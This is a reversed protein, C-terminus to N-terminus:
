TQSYDVVKGPNLLGKPDFALKLRQQLSHEVGSRYRTLAERRLQGVGHEACISGNYRSIIDFVTNNIQPQRKLLLDIQSPDRTAVNFHLNGDGLHGFVYLCLDDGLAAVAAELEPLVRALDSTAVSLDHKVNHGERSQAMPVSERLRWLQMAQEGSHAILAADTLGQAAAVTLIEELRARAQDSGAYDECEILLHYASEPLRLGRVSEPSQRALLALCSASLAEFATLLPGASQRVHRLLAVAANMDSVSVLATATGAPLPFLKFVATTIIGLTGESGIFLDRLDYGANDKRLGRLGNWVEGDATVVELGLTLDRTNGYRLVATGGANTALNGGVTCSGEAALSLPFLRGALRAANQVSSLLCGAQATLTDNDIDVALIRNMRKLSLVLQNGSTNPTAGGVLGTNGGQPVISVDMAACLRVVQWVQETNEPLVVGLARGRFQQRWDTCYPVIAAGELVHAIGVIDRLRDLLANM